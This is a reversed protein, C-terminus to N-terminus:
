RPYQVMGDMRQLDSNSHFLFKVFDDPLTYPSKNHIGDSAFVPASAQIAMQDLMMMESSQNAAEHAHQHHSHHYEAATTTAGPPGYPPGAATFQPAVQAAMSYMQQQPLGVPMGAQEGVYAMTQGAVPQPAYAPAAGVDYQPPQAMNPVHAAGAPHAM